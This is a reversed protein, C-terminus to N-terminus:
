NRDYRKMFKDAEELLTLVTEPHALPADRLPGYVYQTAPHVLPEKRASAKMYGNWDATRDHIVSSMWKFDKQLSDKMSKEAVAKRALSRLSFPFDKKPLIPVVKKPGNYHSYTYDACKTVDLSELEKTSLRKIVLHEPQQLESNNQTPHLTFETVMGHTHRNQSPTHNFLDFHDFWVNIPGNGVALERITKGNRIMHDTLSDRFKM